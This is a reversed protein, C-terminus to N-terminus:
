VVRVQLYGAMNCVSVGLVPIQYTFVNVGFIEKGLLGGSCSDISDEPGGGVLFEMATVMLNVVDRFSMQKINGIEPLDVAFSINPKGSGAIDSINVVWPETFGGEVGVTPLFDFPPGASVDATFNADLTAQATFFGPIHQDSEPTTIATLGALWDTFRLLGGSGVTLEITAQFNAELMAEVEIVGLVTCFIKVQGQVAISGSVGVDGVALQYAKKGSELDTINYPNQLPTYKNTSDSCSHVASETLNDTEVDFCNKPVKIGVHGVDGFFTIAVLTSGKGTVNAVDILADQLADVYNVPSASGPVTKTTQYKQGLMTYDLEFVFPGDLPCSFNAAENGGCAEGLVVIQDETNPGLIVGFGADFQIDLAAQVHSNDPDLSIDVM